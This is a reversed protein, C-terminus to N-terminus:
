ESAGGSSRNMDGAVREWTEAMEQLMVRHEPRLARRALDRCEQAKTICEAPALRKAPEADAMKPETRSTVGITTLAAGVIGGTPAASTDSYRFRITCYAGNQREGPVARDRRSKRPRAVPRSQVKGDLRRVREGAHPLTTASM